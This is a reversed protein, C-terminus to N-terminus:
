PKERAREQMARAPLGAVRTEAAVDRIVVAGAAVLCGCGISIGPIVVAGAGVFTGDGIRVDGAVIAGPGIHVQSGVKCDHDISARTNVISNAGVVTGPQVIAGAMIQVGEGLLVDCAVVASPHVVTAFSYGRAKFREFLEQRHRTSAASGLGNVLEVSDPPYRLISEDDCIVPTGLVDGWPAQGVREAIGLIKVHQLQLAAVLVSAHGGGGLVLIPKAASM